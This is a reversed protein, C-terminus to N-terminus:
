PGAGTGRLLMGTARHMGFRAYWGQLPPDCLLDVMAYSSLRALMRRVLESGIGQGQYEELVELLPIYAALVGDTIATIFGVVLDRETDLALVVEASGQLLRVHTEADVPRVWGAFFGGSLQEAHLGDATTRYEIM